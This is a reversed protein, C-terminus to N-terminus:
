VYYWFINDPLYHYFGGSPLDKAQTRKSRYDRQIM